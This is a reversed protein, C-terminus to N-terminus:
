GTPAPPSSAASRRCRLHSVEAKLTSLTVAQDGYVLTHLRELSLGEPHLSLLAVIETQRRNLLLRQGDLWAQPPASCPCPSGPNPRRSIAAAPVGTTRTRADRAEILRALM